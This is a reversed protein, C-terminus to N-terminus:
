KSKTQTPNTKSPPTQGNAPPPQNTVDKGDFILKISSRFRKYDTYRVIERIHVNEGMFGNGGTFHLVADSYTYVPFWYKGDVQERYTTFPPSLNEHGPRTDDPVNKASVIVIQLDKQDVWIRGDIYREHKKIEKPAVDFVYTELQDVKQRGVYTINYKSIDATTLVFPLRHEIDSLDEPTMSIRQLTSPPAYTVTEVKRGSNDYSIQLVQQYRGDVKNDSNLTEVIVDKQYTYDNMAHLFQTEKAAFEQIIQEPPKSPLAADIPGYGADPRAQTGIQQALLPHPILVAAALFAATGAFVILKRGAAARNMLSVLM